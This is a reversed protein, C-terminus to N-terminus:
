HIQISSSDDKKLSIQNAQLLTIKSFDSLNGCINAPNCMIMADSKQLDIKLTDIGINSAHINSNNRATITLHQFTEKEDKMQLFELRSHDLDATLNAQKFHTLNLASNKAMIRNLHETTHIKIYHYSKKPIQDPFKLTDGVLSYKLDPAVSDKMLFIAIFSSDSQVLEIRENNNICLIKFAPLTKKIVILGNQLTLPKRGTIRLDIAGALILLAITSLMAILIIKSTKM